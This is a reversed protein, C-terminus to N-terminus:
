VFLDLALTQHGFDVFEVDEETAIEAVAGVNKRRLVSMALLIDAVLYPAVPVRVKGVKNASRCAAKPVDINIRDRPVVTAERLKVILLVVAVDVEIFCERNCRLVDIINGEVYVSVPITDV